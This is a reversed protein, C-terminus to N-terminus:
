AFANAYEDTEERGLSVFLVGLGASRDTHVRHEIERGVFSPGATVEIYDGPILAPDSAFYVRHTIEQGQRQYEDIERQSANQVWASVGTAKAYKTKVTGGFEDNAYKNRKITVTHPLNDLLTM